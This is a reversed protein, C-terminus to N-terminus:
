HQLSASGLTVFSSPLFRPQSSAHSTLAAKRSPTANFSLSPCELHFLRASTLTNAEGTHKPSQTARTCQARPGERTRAQVRKPTAPCKPPVPTGHETRAGRARERHLDKLLMDSMVPLPGPVGHPPSMQPSHQRSQGQGADGERLSQQGRAPCPPEAQSARPSNSGM